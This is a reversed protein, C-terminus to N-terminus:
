SYNVGSADCYCGDGIGLGVVARCRRALRWGDARRTDGRAVRRVEGLREIILVGPAVLGQDRASRNAVSVTAVVVRHGEGVVGAALDVRPRQRHAGRARVLRVVPAGGGGYRQGVVLERAVD